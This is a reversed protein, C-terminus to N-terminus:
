QQVNWILYSDQACIPQDEPTPLNLCVRYAIRAGNAIGEVPPITVSSMGNADTPPLFYRVSPRDPLTLSLTSEVRDMPLGTDIQQVSIQIIQEENDNLTPRAAAAVLSVHGPSFPNFIKIEDPQPISDVYQKGLSEMRVRMSDSAAPDYILCYNEFCQRYLNKEAILTVESIPNGSLERGGHMAIFQDFQKPVNHGLGDRVDYFVLQDHIKKEVPPEETQGLMLPLPRLHAQSFDDAPAYFIANAYVQEVTQGGEVAQPKLLPSGFVATGGLRAITAAFPEDVLNSKVISWYENLRYSCDAGCLYAGYPILYVPGNPDNLDQYFGVNEFFQEARHMDQNIRLGTLPRGVYRAGYLQDYLPLFKEYISFGEVVRANATVAANSLHPEEKIGLERGLPYLSFRSVDTVTSDFCMLVRETFQCKLQNRNELISIAPGLLQQGGLTQYFEKFVIDVPFTQTTQAPTPTLGLGEGCGTLLLAALTLLGIWAAARRLKGDGM